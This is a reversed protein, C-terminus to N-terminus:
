ALVIEDVSSLDAGSAPASRPHSGFVVVASDSTATATTLVAAVYRFGNDTDLSEARVSIIAQKDSGSGAQTFQTIAAGSIDKAGTGSSDTAQQLKCDLTGSAGLTGALVVASVEEFQGADVWATTVAGATNADPDVVAVIANAESFRSNM